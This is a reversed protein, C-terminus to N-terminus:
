MTPQGEFNEATHAYATLIERLVDPNAPKILHHNIGSASSRIQDAIQTWGTIAIFYIRRKGAQQRLIQALDYGHRDPLGLDLLVVRPRFEAAVEIAEASQTAPPRGNARMVGQRQELM